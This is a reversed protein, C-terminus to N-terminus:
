VTLPNLGLWPGTAPPVGTTMVPDPKVPAVCTRKPAVAAAYVITESVSISAVAGLPDISRDWAGTLTSTPIIRLMGVVDESNEQYASPPWITPVTVARSPLPGKSARM